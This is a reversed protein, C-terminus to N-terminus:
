HIPILTHSWIVPPARNTNIKTVSVNGDNERMKAWIQSSRARIKGLGLEAVDAGKYTNHVRVYLYLHM